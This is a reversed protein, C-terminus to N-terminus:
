SLKRPAFRRLRNARSLTSLTTSCMHRISSRKTYSKVSASSQPVGAATKLGAILSPWIEAVQSGYRSTGIKLDSHREQLVKGLSPTRSVKYGWYTSAGSRQPRSTTSSEIEARLNRGVSTLRLTVREGPRNTGAALVTQELGADVIINQGSRSVVVGERRDGIKVDSISHPVNHHPAQLPPLIGTFRFTPSLKFIRKRLYQPTEIYRLMESCFNMDAEQDGKRDDPYLIIEDVGFISSARAITGVKATKERLHPTDSIVSAPIVVSLGKVTPRGSQLFRVEYIVM